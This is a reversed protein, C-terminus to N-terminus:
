QLRWLRSRVDDWNSVEDPHQEHEALRIDLERRIETTLEVKEPHVAISDWIDEVLQIKEPISMSFLDITATQPM